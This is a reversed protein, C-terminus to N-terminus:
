ELSLGLYKPPTEMKQCLPLYMLFPLRHGPTIPEASPIQLARLAGPLSSLDGLFEYVAKEERGACLVCGPGQWFRAYLHLFQIADGSQEVGGEPLHQRRLLIFEEPTLERIPCPVDASEVELRDIYGCTKYGQKEYYPFLGDAPKLIAGDYGQERLVAHTKELLQAALGKNRYEPRTALAYLYALKQGGCRCDFWYLACVVQGDRTLYQCREPSFGTSFFGDIAEEPDGFALRWLSKLELLVDTNM